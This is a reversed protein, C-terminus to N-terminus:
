IKSRCPPKSLDIRCHGHRARTTCLHPLEVRDLRAQLAHARLHVPVAHEDLLGLLLLVLLRGVDVREGRPEGAQSCAHWLARTTDDLLGALLLFARAEIYECLVPATYGWTQGSSWFAYELTDLAWQIGLQFRTRYEDSSGGKPGLSDGTKKVVTTTCGTAM